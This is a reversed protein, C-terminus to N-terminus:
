PSLSVSLNTSLIKVIPPWLMSQALGNIGWIIILLIPISTSIMLLNCIATTILGISIMHKPKLKDGLYGSFVQGIGYCIFLALCILGGTSKDIINNKLLDSMLIAFNKRSFYSAFYVLACLSIIHKRKM